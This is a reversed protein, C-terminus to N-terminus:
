FEFRLAMQGQRPTNAQSTIRGFAANSFNAQPSGFVVRNFANALEARFTMTFREHFKVRKLLGFNENYFNPARLDSYTRASSGFAFAAPAKFAAKNIWLDRNPDFSSINTARDAGAVVDPRMVQNGLFSVQNTMTLVLPVGTSYQHIGTLVWGGVFKGAINKWNKAFPLNYSWSMAFVHPIDTIAVSKELGRNYFTQGATGGGALVDSDTLTKAFTYAVQVDLGKYSRVQLQTQLANYTSSGSPNSRNFVDNMQPFPKLSQAVSGTFGTYPVRINAAVAAASTVSQQLVSGLRLYQPDVENLHFLANGIRTGKTGLYSVELTIRPLIEREITFSWNQFYPPKGDSRQVMRIDSGNMGNPILCPAHCYDQPFGSDWNFAPTVGGDGTTKVIQQIFGWSSNLSDRLGANANGLAYYIGYGGRLVTKPMLQYAMGLRPGFAKGYIDALRTNGNRGQGEGLFTLAGPRNGAAPNPLNLDFTSLNGRVEYRPVFIDWRLGYNLTLKRTVKWDDQAYFAYYQYRNRPFYAYERYQGTYVNGLLFSAVANGSNSVGPQGTSLPNFQFWGMAQWPDIGNTEAWRYDIGFKMSHNGRIWSFSDGFQWLNNTQITQNNRNQDGLSLYSTSTFDVAPFGAESGSRVGKLGIQGVWDQGLSYSQIVQYFRTYGITIHNLKSPSIVYDHNIRGWLNRYLTQRNNTTPGPVLIPDSNKYWDRYLFGSIRNRDSISHDIKFNVQDDNAAQRGIAVFNATLANSTPTPLLPVIKSSVPSFRNAPIRNGAFPDRAFGTGTNRTTAPDYLPTTLRSFDGQRYDMPILSLLQNAAGLRYRFGSYVFHFFTKNRGNYVNPIAIPGGLTVGFENQRNIQRAAAFFPRADLKDNRLYEFVAGHLRNAGSKTTFIQVGGGTRGYEANFNARILKFEGITEVSPRGSGPIIGGSEVGTSAVGDVLVEKARNPSGSIQTDNTNGTVGPALFIFQELNRVLGGSQFLPLELLKNNQVVTGLDSTATQVGSVEATVEVVQELQGVELAVDVAVTQAVNLPVGKRLFKRFGKAEVAVEYGGVPLQQLVYNGTDNATTKYAVGTGSNTAVVAAGAVAGGSPDTVRGTIAGLTTQALAAVSAIAFVAILRLLSSKMSM